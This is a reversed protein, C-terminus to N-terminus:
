SIHLGHKDNKQGETSSDTIGHEGQDFAHRSCFLYFRNEELWCKNWVLIEIKSVVPSLDIKERLDAKSHM